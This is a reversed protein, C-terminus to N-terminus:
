VWLVIRKSFRFLMLLFFIFFVITFIFSCVIENLSLLEGRILSLMGTLINFDNWFTNIKLASETWIIPSAYFLVQLIMGVIPSLDRFRAGLVALFFGFFIFFPLYLIVGYLISFPDNSKEFFFVYISVPLATLYFLIWSKFFYRFYIELPTIKLNRLVPSADVFCTLSESIFSSFQNWILLGALLYVFYGDNVSFVMSFIYTLLASNVFLTIVGWFPGLISLKFRRKVDFLSGVFARKIM